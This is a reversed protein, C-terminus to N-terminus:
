GSQRHMQGCDQRHGSDEVGSGCGAEEGKFGEAKEQEADNKAGRPQNAKPDEDEGNTMVTSEMSGEFHFPSGRMAAIVSESTNKSTGNRKRKAM